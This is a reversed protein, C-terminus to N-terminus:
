GPSFAVGPIAPFVYIVLPTNHNSVYTSKKGKKPIEDYEAKFISVFADALEELYSSVFDDEKHELEENIEDFTSLNAAYVKEFAQEYLNRKFFPLENEATTYLAKLKDLHNSIM